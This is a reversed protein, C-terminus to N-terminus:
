RYATTDLLETLARLIAGSSHKFKVGIRAHADDQIAVWVVEAHIVLADWLQPATIALELATGRPIAQVLSLRAGGLGLDIVRVDQSWGEDASVAGDLAVLRRAFARFHARPPM